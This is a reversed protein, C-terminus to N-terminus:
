ERQRTGLAFADQDRHRGRPVIQNARRAFHHLVLIRNRGIDQGEIVDFSLRHHKNRLDWEILLDPDIRANAGRRRGM